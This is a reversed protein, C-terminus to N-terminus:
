KKSGGDSRTEEEESEDPLEKGEEEEPRTPIRYDGSAWRGLDIWKCRKSCFPRYRNGEWAIEKKCIPCHAKM